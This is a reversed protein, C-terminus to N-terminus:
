DVTIQKDRILKSWKAQDERLLQTFAEPTGAVIEAGQSEFREKMGPGALIRVLAAHLRDIVPKPTGAPALMAAWAHTEWGPYTEAITPLEPHSPSRTLSSVALADLKGAKINQDITGSFQVFMVQVQGSILAQMAPGGGRYHVGVTEIGAVDKFLEYVLRSSSAPGASGFNLAAGKQRALTVFEKVTRVGLSPQVLLVQRYRCVQMVPAFDRIPDWQLNRFLFPNLAFTDFTVLLTHGDPASQAVQQTGVIGGSAVRNEVIFPQGLMEALPAALTRAVLDSGGGPSSPVVIRVTKSPYGQAAVEGAWLHTAAMTVLTLLVSRSICGLSM